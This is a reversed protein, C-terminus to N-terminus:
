FGSIKKCTVLSANEIVNLNIVMCNYLEHNPQPNFIIQYKCPVYIIKTIRIYDTNSHCEICNNVYKHVIKIICRSQSDVHPPFYANWEILFRIVWISIYWMLVFWEIQMMKEKSYVRNTRQMPFLYYLRKGAEIDQNSCKGTKKSRCDKMKTGKQVIRCKVICFLHTLLLLTMESKYM